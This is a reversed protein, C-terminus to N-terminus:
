NENPEIRALWEDVLAPVAATANHSYRKFGLPPMAVDLSVLIKETEDGAYEALSAAPFVSLSTGVVLVIGASMVHQVSEDFHRIQEGFWVVDPRLQRGDSALQGMEIPEGGIRVRLREDAESRAYALEGHVHIVHKSGAREHLEDINQTVVVVEYREQLRALALHAANPQAEWARRRRENYFKLVLAPNERWGGPSAVEQWSYNEWPGNSDRFTPLGSEASIGAGSLVVVKRPNVLPSMRHCVIRGLFRRAM